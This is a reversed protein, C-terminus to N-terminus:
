KWNRSESGQVEGCERVVESGAEGSGGGGRQEKRSPSNKARVAKLGSREWLM